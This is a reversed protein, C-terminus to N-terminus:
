GHPELVGELAAASVGGPPLYAAGAVRHGAVVVFRVGADKGTKPATAVAAAAEDGDAVVTRCHLGVLTGVYAAPDAKPPLAFRQVILKGGSRQAMDQLATWAPSHVGASSGLLCARDAAAVHSVPEPPSGGGAFLLWGGVALGM